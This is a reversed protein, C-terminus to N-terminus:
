PPFPVVIRVPRSPWAQALALGPLLLAPTALLARRLM